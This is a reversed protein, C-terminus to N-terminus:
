LENWSNNYLVYAKNTDTEYYVAGDQVTMSEVGDSGIVSSVSGSQFNGSTPNFIDIRDIATTNAWKGVAEFRSPASSGLTYTDGGFSIAMKEKGTINCVYNVTFGISNAATAAGTSIRTSNNAGDTSGDGSNYRRGYNSLPDGNFQLSQQTGGSSDAITTSLVLSFKNDTLSSVTVNNGASPLTTSGDKKWAM